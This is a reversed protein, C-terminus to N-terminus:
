SFRKALCLAKSFVLLFLPHITTIITFFIVLIHLSDVLIPCNLAISLYAFVRFVPLLAKESLVVREKNVVFNM